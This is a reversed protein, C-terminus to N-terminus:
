VVKLLSPHLNVGLYNRGVFSWLQLHHFEASTSGSVSFSCSVRTVLWTNGEFWYIVTDLQLNVSTEEEDYCM